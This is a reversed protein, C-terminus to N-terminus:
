DGLNKMMESKLYYVGTLVIRANEPIEEQPKVEVYGEETFGTTLLFPQFRFRESGEPDTTYFGFRTDENEVVVATEPLADLYEESTHITSAVFMGPILDAGKCSISAMVSIVRAEQDVLSGVNFVEAECDEVGSTTSAFTVRQGERIFPIDKEFVMLQLLPSSRDIVQFLPTSTDVYQGLSVFIAEVRGGIPSVIPIEGQVEGRDLSELDAHLMSLSTRATNYDAVAKQYELRASQFEKDSKVREKWLAEQRQYDQEMVEKMLKANIYRQQLEIIGPHTYTALVQGKGVKQGFGVRISQITGGMLVAVQAKHDPLLVVQGRASIDHSLLHPEIKGFTIGANEVIESALVVQRSGAAEEPAGAEESAPQSCSAALFLVLIFSHLSRM